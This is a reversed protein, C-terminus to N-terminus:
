LQRMHGPAKRRETHWWRVLRREYREVVTCLYDCSVGAWRSAREMLVDLDPVLNGLIDDSHYITYSEGPRLIGPKDHNVKISPLANTMLDKGVAGQQRGENTLPFYNDLVRQETDQPGVLVKECFDLYEDLAEDELDGISVPIRASFPHNNVFPKADRAEKVSALFKGLDPFTCAAEEPDTPLRMKGDLGYVLKLVIIATSVLAVEPPENDYHSDGEIDSLSPAVSHHPSTPLSLVCGLQKTLLYLQPTSCFCQRIVRWLVPAVNLPPIVVGFNSYLLYAFRSVLRHLSPAKPANHPSLAQVAHKTLHCTLSPPLFRVHDLYPISHGEIASVFDMYVVPVRITWCALVLIAITSDPPDFYGACSGSRKVHLKQRPLPHEEESSDLDTSSVESSEQLLAELEADVGDEDRFSSTRANPQADNQQWGDTDKAVHGGLTTAGSNMDQIHHFPEPPPPNPIASLHLAWLDRCIIEFEPPLSWLTMLAAVQKRLLVQLCQYHHFRAREGHYLKPDAKSVEGKKKRTSKLTRKKMTHPGYDGAEGAETIHSQLVHGEACTLMGSSSDKRWQKSGCVPCKRRPAM